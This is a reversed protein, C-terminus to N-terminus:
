HIMEEGRFAQVLQSFVDQEKSDLLCHEIKIGFHKAVDFAKPKRCRMLYLKLGNWTLLVTDRDLRIDVGKM